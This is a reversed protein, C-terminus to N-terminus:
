FVRFAYFICLGPLGPTLPSRSHNKSKPFPFPFQEVWEWIKPVPVPIFFLMGLKQSHSRSHCIGHGIKPFPFPLGTNGPVPIGAWGQHFDVQKFSLCNITGDEDVVFSRYPPDDWHQCHLSQLSDRDWNQMSRIKWTDLWPYQLLQRTPLQEFCWIILNRVHIYTNTYKQLCVSIFTQM